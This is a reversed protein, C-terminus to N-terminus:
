LWDCPIVSVKIDDGRLPDSPTGAAKSLRLIESSEQARALHFVGVALLLHVVARMEVLPLVRRLRPVTATQLEKQLWSGGRTHLYCM